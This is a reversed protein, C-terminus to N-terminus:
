KKSKQTLKELEKFLGDIGSKQIIAMFQSRYTRVISVGDVEVDYIKWGEPSKWFKYLVSFKNDKTIVKSPVYIINKKKQIAPEFDIKENGYIDVRDLYVIRLRKVFLDVFRKQQKPSLKTWYKRGLTLKGMTNFDFLPSAIDFIRQKKEQQSLDKKRIVSLIQETKSKVLSEVYGKDDALAIGFVFLLILFQTILKKM